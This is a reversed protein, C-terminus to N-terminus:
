IGLQYFITISVLFVNQGVSYYCKIFTFYKLHKHRDHLFFVDMRGFGSWTCKYKMDVMINSMSTIHVVRKQIITRCGKQFVINYIYINFLRRLSKYCVNLISVIFDAHHKVLAKAWDHIAAIIVAFWWIDSHKSVAM